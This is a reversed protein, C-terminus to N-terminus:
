NTDYFHDRRASRIVINKARVPVPRNKGIKEETNGPDFKFERILNMIDPGDDQFLRKRRFRMAKLPNGSFVEETLHSTEDQFINKATNPRTSMESKNRILGSERVSNLIVEIENNEENVEVTNEKNIEDLIAIQRLISYVKERYGSTKSIPNGEFNVSFLKPCDRLYEIEDWDQLTNGEIDLVEINEHFMLASLNNVSNFACYLEKLSPFASIGDIESLNTRVLWLIELQKWDTGLSRISDISSGNLKLEIVNPCVSGFKHVAVEDCDVKLELRVLSDLQSVPLGTIEGLLEHPDYIESYNERNEEATRPTSPRVRFKEEMELYNSGEM